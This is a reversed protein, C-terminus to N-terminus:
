LVHSEQNANPWWKEKDYFQPALWFVAELVWKKSWLHFRNRRAWPWGFSVTAARSDWFSRGPRWSSLECLSLSLPSLLSTTWISHSQCYIRPLIYQIVNVPCTPLSHYNSHIFSALGRLCLGRSLQREQEITMPRRKRETVLVGCFRASILTM